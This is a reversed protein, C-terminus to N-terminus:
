SKTTATAHKVDDMETALRSIQADKRQIEAKATRFLTGINRRLHKNEAELHEVQAELEEVREVFSKPYNTSTNSHQRPRKAPRQTSQDQPTAAATRADSDSSGDQKTTRGAVNSLDLDGYLDEDGTAKANAKANPNSM